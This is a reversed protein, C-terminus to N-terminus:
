CQSRNVLMPEGGGMTVVSVERRGSTVTRMKWLLFVVAGLTIMMGGTVGHLHYKGLSVGRRDKVEVMRQLVSELRISSESQRLDSRVENLM